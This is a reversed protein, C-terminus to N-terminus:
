RILGFDSGCGLQQAFFLLDCHPLCGDFGLLFSCAVRTVGRSLVLFSLLRPDPTPPRTMLGLRACELISDRQHSFPFRSGVCRLLTREKVVRFPWFRLGLSDGGRATKSLQFTRSDIPDPSPRHRDM